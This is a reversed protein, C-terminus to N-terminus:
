VAGSGGGVIEIAANTDTKPNSFSYAVEQWDLGRTKLPEAAILNGHSDKVQFKVELSGSEPKLWVSGNYTYGQQLYIQKQSIGATGNETQLRLSREGNEFKVNAVSASGNEGFPKWYTEFDKGEFGRGQIQEAFLGEVSHNIHELFQGYISENIKGMVRDTDVLLVSVGPQEAANLRGTAVNLTFSILAACLISFSRNSTRHSSSTA